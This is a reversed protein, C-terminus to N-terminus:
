KENGRDQNMRTGPEPQFGLCKLSKGGRKAQLELMVLCLRKRNANWASGENNYVLRSCHKGPWLGLPKGLGPWRGQQVVCRTPKATM